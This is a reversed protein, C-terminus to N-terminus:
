PYLEFKIENEQGSTMSSLNFFAEGTIKWQPTNTMIANWFEPANGSNKITIKDSLITESESLITYYNSSGVLGGEFRQGIEGAHVRVDNEYLSYKVFQLIISKQNPNKVKLKLSIFTSSEDAEVISLEELEVELPLIQTQSPTPLLGKNSVDSIISSGALGIIAIVIVFAAIVGGVIFKPNM